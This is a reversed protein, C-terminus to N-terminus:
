SPHSKKNRMHIHTAAAVHVGRSGTVGVGYRRALLMSNLPSIRLFSHSSSILRLPLVPPPERASLSAPLLVPKLM